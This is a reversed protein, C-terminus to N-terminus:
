PVDISFKQGIELGLARKITKDLETTPVGFATLRASLTAPSAYDPGMGSVSSSIRYTKDETREITVTRM